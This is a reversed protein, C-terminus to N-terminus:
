EYEGHILHSVAKSEGGILLAKRIPMPVDMPSPPIQAVIQPLEYPAVQSM